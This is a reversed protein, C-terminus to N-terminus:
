KRIRLYINLIKSTINIGFIDVINKIPKIKKTKGYKLLYKYKKYNLNKRDQKSIFNLLGLLVIYQYALVPYTFKTNNDINKEINKLISNLKEKTWNNTTSENRKYYKYFKEDIYKINKSKLLDNIVFEIDENITLNEDFLINNELIFNKNFIKGHVSGPFKDLSSIIELYDDKTNILSINKDIIIEKKNEIIKYNKFFYIDNNKNIRKDKNNIVDEYLTDDSDIFILYEGKSYLIGLNRCYSVGKNKENHFVKINDYKKSYELCIEYSNDISADDILIIEINNNNIISNLCKVLYKETNYIPIIISYKM